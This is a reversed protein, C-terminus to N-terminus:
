HQGILPRGPTGAVLVAQALDAFAGAAESGTLRVRRALRGTGKHGDDVGVGPATGREVTGVGRFGATPLREVSLLPYGHRQRTRSAADGHGTRDGCGKSGAGRVLRQGLGRGRLEPAVILRALKVENEEADLWLEGYGVLRGDTAVM